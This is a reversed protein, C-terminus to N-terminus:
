AHRGAALPRRRRGRRAISARPPPAGSPAVVQLLVAGAALQRAHPLAARHLRAVPHQRPPPERHARGDAGAVPRRTGISYVQDALIKWIEKATTNRAEDQQGAASNFLDFIRKINPDTPERGLRGGSAFWKAFEPGMYAEVPDVPVAHRPFLYLLETGGNTWVMIHHENNQVRTLSLVREMERVEAFIGVARWHQAVMELQQPWPLFARVTQVQLRLRQGNDTRLRYGESDKRTLGLGDLM